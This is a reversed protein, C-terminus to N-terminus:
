VRSCPVGSTSMLPLQWEMRGICTIILDCLLNIAHRWSIRTVHAHLVGFYPRQFQNCCIVIEQIWCLNNKMKEIVHKKAMRKCSPWSYLKSRSSQPIKKSTSAEYLAAKHKCQPLLKMGQPTELLLTILLTQWSSFIWDSPFGEAPTCCSRDPDCIINWIGRFRPISSNSLPPVQYTPSVIM